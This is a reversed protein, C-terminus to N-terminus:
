RKLFFGLICQLANANETMARHYLLVLISVSNALTYKCKNFM